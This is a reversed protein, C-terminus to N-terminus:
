PESELLPFCINGVPALHYTVRLTHRRCQYVDRKNQIYLSHVKDPDKMQLINSDLIPSEVVILEGCCM